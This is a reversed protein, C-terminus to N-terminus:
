NHKRSRSVLHSRCISQITVINDIVEENSSDMPLIATSNLPHNTSKKRPLSQPVFSSTTSLDAYSNLPSMDSHPDTDAFTFHDDENLTRQSYEVTLHDDSTIVVSHDYFHVSQHKNKPVERMLTQNGVISVSSFSGYSAFQNLIAKKTSSAGHESSDISPNNLPKSELSHTELFHRITTQHSDSSQHSQISETDMSYRQEHFLTFFGNRLFGLLMVVILSIIVSVRILFFQILHITMVIRMTICDFNNGLTSVNDWTHLSLANSNISWISFVRIFLYPLILASFNMYAYCAIKSQKAFGIPVICTYGILTLTIWIPFSIVPILWETGDYIFICSFTLIISNYFDVNLLANFFQCNGYLWNMWVNSGYVKKVKKLVHFMWVTVVIMTVALFSEILVLMLFFKDVVREEVFLRALHSLLVVFSTLIPPLFIYKNKKKFPTLGLIAQTSFLLTTITGVVEVVLLYSFEYISPNERYNVLQFVACSCQVVFQLFSCSIFM